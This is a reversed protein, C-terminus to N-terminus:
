LARVTETDLARKLEKIDHEAAPPPELQRVREELRQLESGAFRAASPRTLLQPIALHRRM